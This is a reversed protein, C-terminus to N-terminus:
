GGLTDRDVDGGTVWLMESLPYAGHRHQTALPPLKKLEEWGMGERADQTPRTKRWEDLRAERALEYEAPPIIM